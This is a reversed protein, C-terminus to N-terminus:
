GVAAAMAAARLAGRDIKGHATRPWPVIAVARKPREHAALAASARRLDPVVTGGGPYCAVVAEGWEADPVGIVAVDDFEGSARLAAEVAAPQVKKGGTIIVADARGAVHLRGAADIRGLDTTVWEAGSRWEPVYGRFLSQGGVVVRGDGDTRVTAHPLARGSSRDGAAFEEPRQAAVMAATETMGYSQVARVRAAAALEALEPWVPGGGLLVLDFGRLWATAEPQALLRQLQTPVLSIVWAGAAAELAPREGRELAKWDWAVHRGGTAACRARAMFGSVHYAPLVDVANVREVGFHRCFGATAAGVTREDHRAWRPAGSSGGTAIALWGLGEPGAEVSELGAGADRGAGGLWVLGAHETAIETGLVLRKLQDREM